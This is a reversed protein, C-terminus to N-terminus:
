VAKGKNLMHYRYERPTIDNRDRFCKIFHSSSSFGHRHAIQDITFEFRDELDKTAQEIRIKVLYHHVTMGTLFQMLSQLLRVDISVEMSLQDASINDSYHLHIYAIAKKTRGIDYPTYADRIPM